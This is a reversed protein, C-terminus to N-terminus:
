KGFGDGDFMDLGGEEGGGWVWVPEQWQPWMRKETVEERGSMTLQLQLMQM